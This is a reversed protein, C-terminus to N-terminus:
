RCGRCFGWSRSIAISVWRLSINSVMFRRTFGLSNILIVLFIKTYIITKLKILYIQFIYKIDLKINEIQILLHVTQVLSQNANHIIQYKLNLYNSKFIFLYIFLTHTHTHTHVRIRM